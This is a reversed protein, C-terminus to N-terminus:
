VIRRAERYAAPPLGMRKSFVRTLYHRNPFGTEVAIRDLSWESSQLLEAARAIRRERVYEAATVGMADRFSANLTKVGIGAAHALAGLHCDGALHRELHELAARV